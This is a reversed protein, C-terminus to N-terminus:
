KLNVVVQNRGKNKAQYLGRDAERIMEDLTNALYTSVGISVRVHIPKHNIYFVNEEITARVKEFVRLAERYNLNLAAVCFEEGGYRSVLDAKRLNRQLLASVQRLVQDGADHGFTDNISKFYDVDIMAICLNLNGRQANAFLKHGAEMFYRRNYLGTLYDRYAAERIELITDLRDLNNIVRCLFESNSVPKALFDNAGARLLRDPITKGDAASICLVALEDRSYTERLRATLALGDMSPMYYDIVALRIDPEKGLIELAAYADAAEFVTLRHKELLNRLHLRSYAADDVILVKVGKNKDLRNILRVIHDVEHICTKHVTDLIWPSKTTPEEQTDCTTFAITPLQHEDILNELIAQAARSEPWEVLFVFFDKRFTQLLSAAEELTHASSIPFSLRCRIRYSLLQAVSGDNEFILVRHM